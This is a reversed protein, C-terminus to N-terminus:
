ERRRRMGLPGMLAFLWVASLTGSGGCGACGSGGWGDDDDRLGSTADDDDGPEPTPEPEVWTDPDCPDADDPADDPIVSPDGPTAWSIANEVTSSYGAADTSTLTARYTTCPELDLAVVLHDLDFITDDNSGGEWTAEGDAAENTEWYLVASGPTIQSVEFGSLTPGVCDVFVFKENDAEESSVVVQDGDVVSILGDGEAVPDQTLLVSGEYSGPAAETLTIEEAVAETSSWASVTVTGLGPTTPISVSVALESDCRQVGSPFDLLAVQGQLAALADVRGWGYATSHGVADYAGGVTDIKQATVELLEQVDSATLSPLASMVLAAVGAANPSAASTGGFNATYNDNRTTVIGYSGGTSPGSVDLEPCLESYNSREGFNTSAGVGVTDPHSVYGDQSCTQGNNNGNGGAWFILTGSGTVRALEVATAVVNPIPQPTDPSASDSPGWSNNIIRAGQAVSFDHAAAEHSNSAGIVRVPLIKCAPCVGVVGISNDVAGMTGAVSTGHSGSPSPDNDGNVFDYGPLLDDILDPHDLDVGSDQASVILSTDGTTIDWAEAVNMDEDFGGGFQGINDLHWQDEFSPDDPLYRPFKPVLWDAEAWAVGPTEALLMSAEVPDVTGGAPVRLAWQDAAAGISGLVEVGVRAAVAKMAAEHQPGDLRLVLQDTIAWPAVLDDPNLTFLPGAVAVGPQVNLSQAVRRTQARTLEIVSRYEQTHYRAGGIRGVRRLEVGDVRLMDPGLLPAFEDRTPVIGPAWVVAFGGPVEYLPYRDPGFEQWRDGDWPAAAAPAALLVTVLAILLARM